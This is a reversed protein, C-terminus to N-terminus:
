SDDLNFFDGAVRELILHEVRALDFLGYHLALEIAALFPEVPYSQKLQLLRRLKAVGRGASRKKLAKVYNDLIPSRGMLDQEQPSPGSPTKGRRPVPHHQKILSEGYRKGILRPHEAVWRHEFLVLIKDYQKHVEVQKCVLREPVSYRNTELHIYGQTDVVRHFTQYIPPIYAPLPKLKPKEMVFAAKPSMGLSRKPKTNATHQCWNYTQANLDPWGQFSRGALFNHEIYSFLREVYAKRDAHGIAHPVFRIGFLQGFVEMEPAITAEPGSGSAVLVSTNDITCRKAAGEFFRLADTLFCKAEFRTFCPYYQAFALRSYGLVLAACQATVIKGGISVRHPSTDHQMEEGPEFHYRGSRQRPARLQKNRLLRTLTSYPVDINHEIKLQEQIRVANGRCKSFLEPLLSIIPQQSSHSHHPSTEPNNLARRVAKRSVKLTKSINRISLGKENLTLIAQRTEYPIM